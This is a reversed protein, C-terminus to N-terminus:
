KKKYYEFISSSLLSYLNQKNPDDALLDLHSKIVETDNRLAPGTQAKEPGLQFAKNLTEKLLPEFLEFSLSEKSLIANSISFMYNVFNSAFVAAVHVKKRQVSDVQEVKRSISEALKKLISLNPENNAELLMPVENFDTNKDKTFTQLPYFVGHNQFRGLVNMPVSGATHAVLINELELELVLNEIADDKISIILIESKNAIEGLRNTPTAGVKVALEKANELNRSYVSLIEHGASKLALSIHTAVNGSGILSINM